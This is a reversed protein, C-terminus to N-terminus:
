NSTSKNTAGRMPKKEFFSLVWRATTIINNSVMLGGLLRMDLSPQRSHCLSQSVSQGRASSTSEEHGDEVRARVTKTRDRETPFVRCTELILPLLFM